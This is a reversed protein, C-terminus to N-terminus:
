SFKAYIEESKWLISMEPYKVRAHSTAILTRAMAKKISEIEDFTLPSTDLQHERIKGSVISEVLDVVSKETVEELSRFSAELSDAIMIIASERSRPTPGPYRFRGEEVTIAKVRCQEIQAHYFYYVLGTGHHEQIVQIITSPLEYQEALKVGETVHSIIVQASELPTLLQHMNFGSFQNETFYQPQALKGIDHYLAAVRAFVPNANIAFAAEEAIAAVALAHRYTGPAELNLRRLLPHSLDGSELLTMDTVIGFASEFLPLVAITLVAIGCMCISTTLLDILIRYDWPNKELLNMSIILPIIALYIKASIKFIEKRKRVTKIFITTLLASVANIIFFNVIHDTCTLSLILTVFVSIVVATKRDILISLALTVLPVFIPFRCLDVLHGAKNLILYETLKALFLTFVVFIVILAKRSLSKLVHPYLTRLYFVAILTLFTALGINGLISILTMPHQESLAKKMGKLLAIHQPTVKDGAYILRRGPPIKSMKMPIADKIIQYITNQKEVDEQITWLQRKYQDLIFASAPTVTPFAQEQIQLWIEEPLFDTLKEPIYALYHHYPQGVNKLKAITRVSTFQVKSLIEQLIESAQILEEFTVTSLSHRWFPREVLGERIRREIKGVEKSSIFYIKGLDRISEDRLLQTAEPDPFEFGIQSVIYKPATANLSLHDVHIEKLQFFFTIAAVIFCGLFLDGVWGQHCIRSLFGKGLSKLVMLYLM